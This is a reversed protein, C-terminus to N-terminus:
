RALRLSHRLLPGALLRGHSLSLTITCISFM